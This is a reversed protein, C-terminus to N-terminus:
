KDGYRAWAQNVDVSLWGAGAPTAFPALHGPARQCIARAVKREVLWRLLDRWDARTLEGHLGLLLVESLGRWVVTCVAHYPPMLDAPDARDWKLHGAPGQPLATFRIM